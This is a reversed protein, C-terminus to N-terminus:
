WFDIFQLPELIYIKKLTLTHALLKGVFENPIILVTPVRLGTFTDTHTHTPTHTYAFM